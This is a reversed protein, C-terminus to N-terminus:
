LSRGMNDEADDDGDDQAVADYDDAADDENDDDVDDDDADPNLSLKTFHDMLTVIVMLIWPDNDHDDTIVSLQLYKSLWLHGINDDNNGSNFTSVVWGACSGETLSYVHSRNVLRCQFQEQSPPKHSGQM